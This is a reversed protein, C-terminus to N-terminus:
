ALVGRIEDAARSADLFMLGLKAEKRALGLLVAHAGAAMALVYGESGKVVIQEVNGRKLETAARSGITLMAASMAAVQTEELGCPLLSAIILGDESVVAAAEFDPSSSQLHSLAQNLQETRSV